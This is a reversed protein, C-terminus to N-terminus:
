ASVTGVTIEGKNRVNYTTKVLDGVSVSRSVSTVKFSGSIETLGTTNGEPYLTLTVDADLALATQGADAPDRLVSITGSASKQGGEVDTWDSGMINADLEAVTMEIDFSEIEGIASAGVEAAGEHGKYRAM